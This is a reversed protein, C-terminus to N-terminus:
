AARRRQQHRALCDMRRLDDNKLQLALEVWLDVVDILESRTVPDTRQRVRKLTHDVQFRKDNADIYEHLAAEGEGPDAVIDVLGLEHLESATRTVGDEILTRAMKAGVKRQLFSQAGMGPFLNFLIEPLGFKANKEAIVVDNTLMAEFGGGIADGQILAITKIPLGYGLYNQYLVDVSTRAYRRLKEADGQRILQTFRFLDGGLSWAGKAKSTWVLYKFPMEEEVAMGFEDQIQKTFVYGDQMLAPTFCAREPHTMQAYLIKRESDLDLKLNELDLDLYSPRAVPTQQETADFSRFNFVNDNHHPAILQQIEHKSAAM